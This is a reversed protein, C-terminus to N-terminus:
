FTPPLQPRPFLVSIKNNSADLVELRPIKGKLFDLSTFNNSSLNIKRLGVLIETPISSTADNRLGYSILNLDDGKRGKRIIDLSMRGESARMAQNFEEESVPAYDIIMVSPLLSILYSRTKPNTSVPNFKMYFNKLNSLHSLPSLAALDAVLNLSLDLQILVQNKHQLQPITSIRNAKLNLSALRPLQFLGEPLGQLGFGQLDLAVLGNLHQEPSILNQM